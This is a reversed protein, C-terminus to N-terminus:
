GVRVFPDIDGFCLCYSAKQTNDSPSPGIGRLFEGDQNLNVSFPGGVPPQLTVRLPKALVVPDKPDIRISWNQAVLVSVLFSQTVGRWGDWAPDARTAGNNLVTFVANGSQTALYEGGRPHSPAKGGPVSPFYLVGGYGYYIDHIYYNLRYDRGVMANKAQTHITLTVGIVTENPDARMASLAADLTM